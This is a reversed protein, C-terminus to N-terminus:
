RPRYELREATAAEEAIKSACAQMSDNDKCRVPVTATRGKRKKKAKLHLEIEALATGDPQLTMLFLRRMKAEKAARALENLYVAPWAAGIFVRLVGKGKAKERDVRAFMQAHINFQKQAAVLERLAGGPTRPANPPPRHNEFTVRDLAGLTIKQGHVFATVGHKTPPSGKARPLPSVYGDMGPVKIEITPAIQAATALAVKSKQELYIRLKRQREFRAQTRAREGLDAYFRGALASLWQGHRVQPHGKDLKRLVRRALTENSEGHLRAVGYASAAVDTFAVEPNPTQGAAESSSILAVVQQTNWDPAGTAAVFVFVATATPLM